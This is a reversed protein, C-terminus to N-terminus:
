LLILFTIINGSLFFVISLIWIHLSQVARIVEKWSFNDKSEEESVSGTHKLAFIVYAREEETLFRATEPSRPLLFFSIM